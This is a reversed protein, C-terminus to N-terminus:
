GDGDIINASEKQIELEKLASYLIMGKMVFSGAM